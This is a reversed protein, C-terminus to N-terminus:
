YVVCSDRIGVQVLLFLVRNVACFKFDTCGIPNIMNIYKLYFDFLISFYFM